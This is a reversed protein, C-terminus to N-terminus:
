KKEEEALRLNIKLITEPLERISDIVYDAGAELYIQEVEKKKRAIDEKEAADYEEQSMGMLNSGIIIGVTWAGANKGELIDMVTDGVKVVHSAPYVNSRRMCEYIMFPSPRSHGTIDPTVVTDPAYGGEKAVPLVYEMMESTYGTTSGIKIGEKRLEDVAAAVGPIPISYQAVVKSLTNEFSQYLHQIDVENWPRGFVSEWMAKGREQSLMSRIHAKKEMGMPANIEEKTFHLGIDSFTRDFVQVPAQSGYDTTTGAWDFVVLEVKNKENM